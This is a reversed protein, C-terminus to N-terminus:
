IFLMFARLKCVTNSCNHLREFPQYFVHGLTRVGGCGNSRRYMCTVMSRVSLTWVTTSANSRNTLCTVLHEFAQQVTWVDTCACLWVTFLCHKLLQPPTWVTLRVCSWVNSRRSFREFTQVHVYGYRVTNSCNHLREFTQALTDRKDYISTIHVASMCALTRVDLTLPEQKRIIYAYPSFSACNGSCHTPAVIQVRTVVVM